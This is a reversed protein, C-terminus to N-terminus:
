KEEDAEEKSVMEEEREEDDELRQVKDKEDCDACDRQVNPEPMSMVTDAMKDAEQEYRDGPKGITLKTQVRNENGSFLSISGFDFGAHGEGVHPSLARRRPAPKRVPLVSFSPAKKTQAYTRTNM